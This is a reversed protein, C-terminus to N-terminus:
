GGAFKLPTITNFLRVFYGRTTPQVLLEVALLGALIGAVIWQAQTV